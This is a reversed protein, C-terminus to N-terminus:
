QGSVLARKVRRRQGDLFEALDESLSPVALDVLAQLTEAEISGQKLELTRAKQGSPLTPAAAPEITDGDPLPPLGVDARAENKTIWRGAVGINLRAYKDNEDEQLARLDTIDFATTIRRDNTFDGLLQTNVTAQDFSYLPLITMEAFMERAERFNAYTSRDLGAGLGAIIAPVRLVAAIREEPVRHLAKMDMQEPSFGYQNMKAGGRLVGVKGQNGMSFDRQIGAKMERAQDETLDSDAPVEVMIGAAGGNRLMSAQWESAMEDGLVEAALRRLPAYGLRHDRDDLGLKFHVINEVPIYEANQEGPKPQYKYADIFNRSNKDRWPRILLPSIPWLEVVNGQTPDGARIKRWYANGEIHKAYQTWSWLQAGTMAPNPRDLLRQMESDQLWDRTTPDRWLWVKLPAEPYATCIASLCAFVASNGDSGHGYAAELMQTAWPGHVLMGSRIAATVEPQLWLKEEAKQRRPIHEGRLFSLIPNSM